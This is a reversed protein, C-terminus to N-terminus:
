DYKAHKTDRLVGVAQEWVTGVPADIDVNNGNWAFGLSASHLYMRSLGLRKFGANRRNNGYRLDGIVPHGCHKAHVRIQHTRGTEIEIRLLSGQPYTEIVNFHSLASQGDVSVMVRREGAHEKNKVLPADVTRNGHEWVGDVLALYCKKVERERFLAQMSRGVGGNRAILLCGSTGRDLRHVLELEPESRAQRLADIAGFALGSGGHVALGAPKNLVLFDDSEVIVAALVSAALKDPVHVKDTTKLQMPPIRVVDGVQLKRTPKISAEPCARPEVCCSITL